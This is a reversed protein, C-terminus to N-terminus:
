KEVQNDYCWKAAESISNFEILKGEYLPVDMGQKQFEAKIANVIISLATASLASFQIAGNPPVNGTKSIADSVIKGVDALSIAM